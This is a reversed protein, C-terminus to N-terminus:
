NSLSFMRDIRYKEVGGLKFKYEETGLTLDLFKIEKGFISNESIHKILETILIMGPSYNRYRDDIAVQIISIEDKIVFGYCYAAVEDDINFIAIVGDNVSSMSEFIINNKNNYVVDYLKNKFSKQPKYKQDQRREYVNKLRNITKLDLHENFLLNVNFKTHNKKLRNNATRINQRVSKKLSRFYDDFSPVINIGVCSININHKIFLSKSIVEHTSSLSKTGRVFLKKFVVLSKLERLVLDFDTSTFEQDYLFDVYDSGAMDGTIYLDGGRKLFPFIACVEDSKYYVLVINENTLRNLITRRYKSWALANWEWSQFPNSIKNEDYFKKWLRETKHIEENRFIEIRM